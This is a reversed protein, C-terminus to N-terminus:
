SLNEFAIEGDAYIAPTKQGAKEIMQAARQCKEKVVDCIANIAVKDIALFEGLVDTGRLGVGVMGIRVVDRPEFKVGIMTQNKQPPVAHIEAAAVAPTADIGGATAGLAGLAATKLLDRRSLKSGKENM